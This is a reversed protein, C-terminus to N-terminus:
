RPTPAPATEWPLRGGPDTANRVPLVPKDATQMMTQAVIVTTVRRNQAACASDDCEAVRKARGAVVISLRAPDIGAETLRTYVAKARADSLKLNEASGGSDDAHGEIVVRVTPQSQLWEAQAELVRRARAGLEASGDSFFVLDGAAQRLTDQATKTARRGPTTSPVAPPTGPTPATATRWGDAAPAPAGLNSKFEPQPASPLPLAALRQPASDQRRTLAILDHRAVDAVAADPYRAVLAELQRQAVDPRGARLEREAAQYINLADRDVASLNLNRPTTSTGLLVERPGLGASGQTAGGSQAYGAATFTLSAALPMVVLMGASRFSAATSLSTIRSTIRATM